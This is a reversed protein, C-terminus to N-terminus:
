ARSSSMSTNARPGPRCRRRRVLLADKQDYLKLNVNVFQGPWLASDKNPFAAKLKITGTTADVANDVFSLTGIAAARDSNPPLAEVPLRSQWIPRIEFLRQEPM